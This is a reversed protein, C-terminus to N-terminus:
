AKKCVCTYGLPNLTLEETIKVRRSSGYKNKINRAQKWASYTASAIAGAGGSVAMLAALGIGTIGVAAGGISAGAAVATYFNVNLKLEYEADGAKMYRQAKIGGEIYTTENEDMVAYSSPMVLTGNYCMDM